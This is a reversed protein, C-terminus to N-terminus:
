WDVRTKTSRKTYCSKSRPQHLNKRTRAGNLQTSKSSSTASNPLPAEGLVHRTKLRRPGTRDEPWGFPLSPLRVFM